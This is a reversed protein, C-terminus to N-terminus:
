EKKQHTRQSLITASSLESLMEESRYVDVESRISKVLFIDDPFIFGVRALIPAVCADFPFPFSLVM